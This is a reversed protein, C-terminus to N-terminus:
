ASAKRNGQAELWERVDGWKWATMRGELRVPQPFDGSKVRRWLTPSSFPLVPLVQRERVLAFDPLTDYSLNEAERATSGTNTTSAM